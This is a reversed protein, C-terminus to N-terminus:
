SAPWPRRDRKDAVAERIREVNVARAQQIIDNLAEESLTGEYAFVLAGARMVAVKPISQVDFMRALEPESEIDVTAFVVDTNQQAVKTFVPEFARCPGCWSSWLDIIVFENSGILGGFSAADVIVAAREGNRM